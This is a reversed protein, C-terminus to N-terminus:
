RGARVAARPEGAAELARFAGALRQVGETLQAPTVVGFSLRAECTPVPGNDGNVYCFSGPVYLVGERLAARMLASDPGTDVEPPFRLWVYLGGGPRTWHVGSDGFEKALAALLADRKRRYVERLEVVHRDCAGTELLRDLLHQTLNNSGFDHNGKLRLLPTVLERPLFGYGTKLGPACPKSFTLALIVQSNDTDLSKIGPLDAGEFRLERYAADELIFIRQKKSYLRTLELLRQRRPLSLNLGTPNQFYDCIYVLKVRELEGSHELRQFLEELADVRMGEEDMPVALTRAGMSNLTGQYVFYSPAETIVIDGPDLLLEGVLYLLQQSGTTVVVDDPTLAMDAASVGDMRALRSLLKERLPAHGRTTGYQLAAQAREPRSLLFDFAEEVEAAPLSVPDVLGAALSILSPNEVAQQMFYSIPSDTTRQSRKSFPIDSRTM